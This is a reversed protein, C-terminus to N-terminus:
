PTDGRPDTKSATSSLVASRGPVSSLVLAAVLALGAGFLFPARPGFGEFSGAGQWLIGALVSAPLAAAGV